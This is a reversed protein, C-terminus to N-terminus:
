VGRSRRRFTLVVLLGGAAFMAATTPEPITTFTLSLGEFAFSGAVGSASFQSVDTFGTLDFTVLTYIQDNMGGTFNFTYTGEGGNFAGSLSIRDSTNDSASLDFNFSSNTDGLTLSVAELTGIPAEATGPSIAGSELDIAKLSGTGALVGGDVVTSGALTGSVLLTGASVTTNGTYTNNRTLTLTGAGSQVLAGTGSIVGGLTQNASSAWEFTGNNEINTNYQGFTGTGSSMQAAAGFKLTGANITIASLTNQTTTSNVRGNESGNFTLTGTGNKTLTNAGSGTPLNTYNGDIQWNGSGGFVVNRSSGGASQWSAINTGFTVTNASNNTFIPSFAPNTSGSFVVDFLGTGVGVSVPGAGSEVTFTNGLNFRGQNAFTGIQTGTMTLAGTQSSTVLINVGGGGSTWDGGNWTLSLDGAQFGSWVATNGDKPLGASWNAATALNNNTTGMWTSEAAQLASMSGLVAMVGM